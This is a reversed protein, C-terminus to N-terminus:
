KVWARNYGESNYEPTDKKVMSAKILDRENQRLHAEFDRGQEHLEKIGTITLEWEHQAISIQRKNKSAIAKSLKEKARGSQPLGGQPKSRYM